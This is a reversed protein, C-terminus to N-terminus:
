HKRCKEAKDFISFSEYSMFTVNLRVQHFNWLIFSLKSPLGRVSLGRKIPFDLIIEMYFHDYNDIRVSM